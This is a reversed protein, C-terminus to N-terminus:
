IAIQMERPCMTVGINCQYSSSEHDNTGNPSNVLLINCQCSWERDAHLVASGTPFTHNAGQQFGSAYCQVDTVVKGPRFDINHTPTSCHFYKLDGDGLVIDKSTKVKCRDYITTCNERMSIVSYNSSPQNDLSEQNGENSTSNRRPSTMNTEEPVSANGGLEKSLQVLSNLADAIENRVADAESSLKKVAKALGSNSDHDYTNYINFVGLAIASTTMAWLICAACLLFPGEYDLKKKVTKM